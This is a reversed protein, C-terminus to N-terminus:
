SFLYNYLQVMGHVNKAQANEDFKVGRLVSHLRKYDKYLGDSNKNFSEDSFSGAGTVIVSVASYMFELVALDRRVKDQYFHLGATVRIKAYPDRSHLDERSIFGASVANVINRLYNGIVTDAAL